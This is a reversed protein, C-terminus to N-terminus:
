DIFQEMLNTKLHNAQIYHTHRLTTRLDILIMQNTNDLIIQQQYFLVLPRLFGTPITFALQSLAPLLLVGLMAADLTHLVLILKM